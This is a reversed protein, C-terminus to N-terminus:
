VVALGLDHTILLLATDNERTLSELHDLIVKQVTVDLASTPEDAILLKPEAGLGIGILVRQRMGGSFQHPFQDMRRKADALGAHELVEIAKANIAARGNAVGNARIAERVQFGVSWVPNLNSMPDQPVYGIVRGRVKAM